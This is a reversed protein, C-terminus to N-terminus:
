DELTLQCGTSPPLISGWQSLLGDNGPQKLIAVPFPLTCLPERSLISMGVPEISTGRVVGRIMISTAPESEGIRCTEDEYRSCIIRPSAALDYRGESRATWLRRRRSLRNQIHRTAEMCTIKDGCVASYVRAACFYLGLYNRL